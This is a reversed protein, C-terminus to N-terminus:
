GLLSDNNIYNTYKKTNVIASKSKIVSSYSRVKTNSNSRTSKSTDKKPTTPIDTIVWKPVYHKM